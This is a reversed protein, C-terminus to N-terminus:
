ETDIEYDKEITGKKSNGRLQPQWWYTGVAKGLLPKAETFTKFHGRCLHLRNTEDTTSKSESSYKKSNRNIKLVKYSYSPTGTVKRGKKKKKAPVVVQEINKCNLLTCFALIIFGSIKAAEKDQSKQFEPLPYWDGLDWKKLMFKETLETFGFSSMVGWNMPESWHNGIVVYLFGKETIRVVIALNCRDELSSLTLLTDKYPLRMPYCKIAKDFGDQDKFIGEAFGAITTVDGLHFNEAEYLLPLTEGLSAHFGIRQDDEITSSLVPKAEIGKTDFQFAHGAKVLHLKRQLSTIIQGQWM